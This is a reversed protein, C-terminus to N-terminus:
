FFIKSTVQKWLHCFLNFLGKGCDAKRGHYKSNYYHFHLFCWIPRTMIMMTCWSTWWRDSLKVGHLSQKNQSLKAGAPGCGFAKWAEVCPWIMMMFLCFFGNGPWFHRELDFIFWRRFTLVKSKIQRSIVKTFMDVSFSKNTVKCINRSSSSFYNFHLRAFQGFVVTVSM